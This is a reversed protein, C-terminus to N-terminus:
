LIVLRPYCFGSIYQFLPTQPPPFIAVKYDGVAVSKLVVAVPAGM